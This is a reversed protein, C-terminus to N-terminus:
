VYMSCVGALVMLKDFKQMISSRPQHLTALVAMGQDSLVRMVNIINQAAAADLGSTPEDAMLFSISPDLLEQAIALRRKEGGSVGKLYPNSDDGIFTDACKELQMAEIVADVRSAPAPAGAAVKLAATFTLTERVTLCSNFVDEQTVLGSVRRFATPTVEKGDVLVQM